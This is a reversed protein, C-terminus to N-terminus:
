LIYPEYSCSASLNNAGNETVLIDDEIRVGIGEEPIYIGPECTLVMGPELSKSYDGADHADLGLFHSAAHPYYRRIAVRDSATAILGLDVLAAGVHREVAEESERLTIGPKIAERAAEAIFQVAHFVALQRGILPQASITRTIDATYHQVEAGIDIVTMADAALPGDNSVHHITTAHSGNAVIPSFGHGSAGRSRFGATLAAEIEFEYKYAQLNAATRISALADSTIQIAEQLVALEEPQKIVRLAALTTRIDHLLVQPAIRALKQALRRRSPNLYMSYRTHYSPGPKLTYVENIGHLSSRLRAWGDRHKYYQTIGSRKTAASIDFAGDFVDRMHNHPPLIVYSEVGDIVLVIDPYELGTLYFFNSEQAFPFTTDATRQLQGNAALVIPAKTPLRNRLAARNGSFFSSSIVSSM